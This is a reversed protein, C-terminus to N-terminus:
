AISAMMTRVVELEDAHITHLIGRNRGAYTKLSRLRFRFLRRNYRFVIRTLWDPASRPLVIAKIASLLTVGVLVVCLIFALLRTFIEM